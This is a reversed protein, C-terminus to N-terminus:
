IIEGQRLREVAQKAIKVSSPLRVAINTRIAKAYKSLAAIAALLERERQKTLVREGRELRSLFSVSIGIADAIPRLKLKATRRATRIGNGIMM